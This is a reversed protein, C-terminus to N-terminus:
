DIWTWRLFALSVLHRRENNKHEKRSAKMQIRTKVRWPEIHSGAHFYMVMQLILESLADMNKGILFMDQVRLIHVSTQASTLHNEGRNERCVRSIEHDCIHCPPLAQKQQTSRRWLTLHDEMLNGAIGGNGSTQDDEDKAGEESTLQTSSHQGESECTVMVGMESGSSTDSKDEEM